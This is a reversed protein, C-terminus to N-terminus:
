KLSEYISKFFSVYKNVNVSGKYIKKCIEIGEMDWEQYLGEEKGNVYTCECKKNTNEYWEQYLGYWKREVCAVEFYKMGNDYWKQYVGEEKGNVYTVKCKKMGNKYWEEYLGEEKGNVYTVKCKKMGNTYWEQYIGNKLKSLGYLEAVYRNLFFHIGETWIEEPDKDYDSEEVIKGVEYILTKYTFINNKASKYTNGESDEISLIYANNCRYSATQKIVVSKRDMNTLADEPIELTVLVRKGDSEACKYATISM